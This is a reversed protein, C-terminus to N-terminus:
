SPRHSRYPQVCRPPRSRRRRRRAARSRPGDAASRRPRRRYPEDPAGRGRLGDCGAGHRERNHVSPGEGLRERYGRQERRLQRPPRHGEARPHPPEGLRAVRRLRPRRAAAEDKKRRGHEGDEGEDAVLRDHGTLRDPAHRQDRAHKEHRQERSTKGTERGPVLAHGVTLDRQLRAGGRQPPGSGRRSGGPLRASQSRDPPHRARPTRRRRNWRGASARPGRHRRRRTPRSRRTAALGSGAYPIARARRCPWSSRRGSRPARVGGPRRAPSPCGGARTADGASGRCARRAPRGRM